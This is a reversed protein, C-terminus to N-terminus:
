VIKLETVVLSGHGIFMEIELRAKCSAYPCDVQARDWQNGYCNLDALIMQECVPCPVLYESPQLDVNALFSGSCVIVCDNKGM